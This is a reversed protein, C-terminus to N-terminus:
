AYNMTSVMEIAASKVKVGKSTNKPFNAQFVPRVALILCTFSPIAIILALAACINFCLVSYTSLEGLFYFHASIM